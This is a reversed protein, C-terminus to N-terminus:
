CKTSSFVCLRMSADLVPSLIGDSLNIQAQQVRAFANTTNAGLYGSVAVGLRSQLKKVPEGSSGQRLRELHVRRQEESVEMGHALIEAAVAADLGTLLVLDVRKGIDSLGTLGLATRFEAFDSTYQGEVYQGRITLSGASSFTDLAFSPHVNDAVEAVEWPDDITYSLDNRTRRVAVTIRENPTRGQVLAGPYRTAHTGVSYPYLGTPLLNGAVNQQQAREVYAAHPVTSGIFASMRKNTRDYVIFVCRFTKHDPRVDQLRLREVGRAAASDVLRAGRLAIVIKGDLEVPAFSNSTLLVEIIEGTLEFQSGVLKQGLTTTALHRYDPARDDAPWAVSLKKVTDDLLKKQEARAAEEEKRRQDAEKRLAEAEKALVDARKAEAEALITKEAADQAAKKFRQANERADQGNSWAIAGLATAAVLLVLSAALGMLTRRVVRRAQEAERQQAAARESQAEAERKQATEKAALAEAMQALRQREANQQEAAWAESATIYDLQLTSPEPADKPRRAAWEKGAAIDTGSLLRIPQRGGEDWESARQLYRTHKQMWDVDTKLAEVLEILGSRFGSGPKQPEHYFYIYNLQALQEPPHTDGIPRCVIPIIRKGLAVAQEVEWACARSGASSPSVVFVISDADRIMSGLKKEWDEGGHIGTRDLETAFGGVELAADLQDAFELDDRSYSIFLNLKTNFAGTDAM